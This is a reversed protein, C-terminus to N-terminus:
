TAQQPKYLGFFASFLGFFRSIPLGVLIKAKECARWFKKIASFAYL